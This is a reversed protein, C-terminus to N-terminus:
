YGRVTVSETAKALVDKLGPADQPLGTVSMEVTADGDDTAIWRVIVYRLTEIPIYTYILTSVEHPNGDAGNETSDYNELIKLDNEPAQSSALNAILKERLASPLLTEPLSSEVRVGREKEPDLFKVEGPAKTARTLQWGRPMDISVTVRPRDQQQVSFTQKRYKLGASKFAPKHNPVPTKVIYEVPPSDGSGPNGNASATTPQTLDGVLYGGTAGLLGLVVVGSALVATKM